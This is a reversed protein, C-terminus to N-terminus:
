FVYGRQLSNVPSVFNSTAGLVARDLAKLREVALGREIEVRGGDSGGRCVWREAAALM